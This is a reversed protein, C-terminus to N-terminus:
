YWVFQPLSGVAAQTVSSSTSLAATSSGSESVPVSNLSVVENARVTFNVGAGVVILPKNKKSRKRGQVTQVGVLQQIVKIHPVWCGRLREVIQM